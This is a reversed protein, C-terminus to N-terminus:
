GAIPLASMPLWEAARAAIYQLVASEIPPSARLRPDFHCLLGRVVGDADLLPARISSALGRDSLDATMRRFASPEACDLWSNERDYLVSTVGANMSSCLVGTFRYRTRANLQALGARIGSTRVAIVLDECAATCCMADIMPPPPTHGDQPACLMTANTLPRRRM